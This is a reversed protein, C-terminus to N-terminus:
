RSIRLSWVPTDDPRIPLDLVDGRRMVRVNQKVLHVEGEPLDDIVVRSSSPRGCVMAYVAGDRGRTFRVTHGEDTTSTSREFPRRGYIAAGNDALWTGLAFIRLQQAWPIYGGPMAGFNLLLNGGDAVINAFMTILEPIPM